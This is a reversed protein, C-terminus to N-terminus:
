VTMGQFTQAGGAAAGIINAQFDIKAQKKGLRQQTTAFKHMWNIEKQFEAAMTNIVGQATSGGTHLVGANESFAKTKGITQKMTFKRRRMKELNDEYRLQIAEQDAEDQKFAGFIGTFAKFGGMVAAFEM